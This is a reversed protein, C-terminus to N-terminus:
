MRLMPWLIVSGYNGVIVVKGLVKSPEITEETWGLRATEVRFVLVDSLDLGDLLGCVRQHAVRRGRAQGHEEDVDTLLFITGDSLYLYRDDVKSTVHVKLRYVPKCRHGVMTSILSTQLTQTGVSTTGARYNQKIIAYHDEYLLASTEWLPGLKRVENLHTFSHPNYTCQDVGFAKEYAVYWRRFLDTEFADTDLRNYLANPLCLGRVIYVTLLWCKITGRPATDLILPWYALIYNRYEASKWIAPDFERPQRNFNSIGKCKALGRNLPEVDAPRNSVSMKPGVNYSCRMMRRVVGLAILHM